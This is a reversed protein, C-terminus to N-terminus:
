QSAETLKAAIPKWGDLTSADAYAWIIYKSGLIQNLEAAKMLGEPTLAEADNHTSNCRINLSDMWARVEKAYQQTWKFYPAYFEVIEYGMQAVAKVTGMLDKALEDRVSYLELGVPIKKAPPLLAVATTSLFARRSIM